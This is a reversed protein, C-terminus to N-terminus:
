RGYLRMLIKEPTLPADYDPAWKPNFARVADQLAFFAGIGYMFPPEGVAKSKFIAPEPGSTELPHCIMVGPASYIDPVKYTSLSDTVMRGDPSFMVEEMTMWGIGQMVGGEVQGLDIAPNISNGFDHVVLVNDITYTGRLCDLTVMVVAAGYVHYAFPDGKERGKDFWIVPTSYHGNETLSVRSLFAARVLEEWTLDTATGGKHVIEDRLEIDGPPCGLNEAAITKLRELLRVSAILLANGNLDAGTSAATPSTNAVRATNTTEIKIRGIDISFVRAAVQALKTNVGQGMEVAGTSIGISGDQYIHVLARAQNMSTNTFSIGFCVPMVAMGKRYITKRDNFESIGRAIEELHFDGALTAYCKGVNVGTARQGYQFEDGEQLFNAKQIEYAPVKLGAAARAIASEIVFMGQPAGFGRFATNPPLNTRCSHVTVETNPIFYANTSHFLTREMIAPSLDAAAGGNQYLVARYAKIKLDATLGIRFDASYPHRKGTMRMDDGRQLVIKVPRDLLLSALAAMVAVGTAQDEKGGFAGGLRTVDVEVLNMPLGLVRAAIKQVLAPGQTSSHIKMGGEGGPIAYAGQTELYLHEQAGSEVRGGFIHDCEKWSNDIDGMRFTRSPILLHGKEKAERPDTIVDMESVKIVVMGSARRATQDDTAVVLAVPQGCYHVEDQALLTEDQVIGGIDNRGPIDKCTFVRVVGPLEMAKSTDIHTIRGHASPSGTVAGYLTNKLVPIDDLFVSRGTVHGTADRNNM